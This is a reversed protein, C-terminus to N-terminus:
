SNIQREATGTTITGTIDTIIVGTTTIVIGTITIGGTGTTGTGIITAPATITIDRSMITTAVIIIDTGPM